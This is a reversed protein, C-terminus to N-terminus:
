AMYDGRLRATVKKMELQVQTDIETIQNNIQAIKPYAPGFQTGLQAAQVKLDAKQAELKDLLGSSAASSKGSGTAAGSVASATETDGAETLRYLSEKEMRDSEAATLEKNLEDLKQTTINQKEDIGLINHEKQYRVLKQQSTEVKMQLDVLQRSLWDSAQMTSEFRTKFNQEIYTNALTNVVRAALEKNPSRFHIELIRTNPVLLVRLNGKFAGLLETARASDPQIADTTLELSSSPRMGHGGFEPLKDLNLEKIVQLALLDSQLIRVETDLDTPDYYDVSNNGDRLNSLMPDPKNIAISGKADYIPTSSLNAILTSGFIILLTGLVVWVRKILVRFYDRLISDQATTASQMLALQRGLQMPVPSTERLSTSNPSFGPVQEM